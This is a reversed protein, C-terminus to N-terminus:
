SSGLEIYQIIGRLGNVLWDPDKAAMEEAQGEKLNVIIEGKLTRLVLLSTPFYRVIEEVPTTYPWHRDSLLRRYNVDGKLIVLDLSSIEDHLHKPMECFHDASAWFWEASLHLTRRSLATQIREALSNLSQRPAKAFGELTQELDKPMADSVFFPYPKLFFTTKDAWGNSLLFDALFLDFGLEMGVNDNAFATHSFTKEEFVELIRAFDNILLNEREIMGQRRRVEDAVTLNSLDVRNGWLSAHLLNEFCLRPDGIMEVSDLAISLPLICEGLQQRKSLSFPDLGRLSGPQFYQVAELLRRYFFAEAFYWPIELWTRGQFEKWKHNWQKVDPAKETLPRIQGSLIEEKLLALRKVIASPYNNDAIVEEVIKPKRHLITKQAFSGKESTMLFGPLSKACKM